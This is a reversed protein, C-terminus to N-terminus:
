TRSRKIGDLVPDTNGSPPASNVANGSVSGARQKNAITQLVQTTDEQPQTPARGKAAYYIDDWTILGQELYEKRPFTGFRTTYPEELVADMTAAHDKWDTHQEKFRALSLENEIAALRSVESGDHDARASLDKEIQSAKQQAQQFSAQNDMAIKAAKVASESDLTLGHSEAFKALKEDNVPLSQEGADPNTVQAPDPNVAPATPQAEPVASAGPVDVVPDTIPEEM